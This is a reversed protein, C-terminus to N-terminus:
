VVVVVRFLSVRKGGVGFGRSGCWTFLVAGLTFGGLVVATGLTRVSVGGTDLPPEWEEKVADDAEDM